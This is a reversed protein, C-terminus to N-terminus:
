SCSSIEMLKPGLLTHHSLLFFILGHWYTPSFLFLTCFQFELNFGELKHWSPFVAVHGTELM